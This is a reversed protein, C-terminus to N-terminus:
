NLKECDSFFWKDSNIKLKKYEQMKKENSLFYILYPNIQNQIRSLYPKRSCHQYLDEDFSLNNLGYTDRITINRNAFDYNILITLFLLISFIVNRNRNVLIINKLFYILFGFSLIDTFLSYQFESIVRVSSNIYLIILIFIILCLNLLIMQFNKKFILYLLTLNMMLYFPKLSIYKKNDFKYEFQFMDLDIFYLYYLEKFSQIISIIEFELFNNNAFFAENSFFPDYVIKFNNPVFHISLFFNSLFFALGILSLKDFFILKNSSALYFSVCLCLYFFFVLFHFYSLIELKYFLLFLVFITSLLLLLGIKTRITNIKYNNTEQNRFIKLFLFLLPFIFLYPLFQIKAFVSLFLMLSSLFINIKSHFNKSLFYISLILIFFGFSINHNLFSLFTFNPILLLILIISIKFFSNIQFNDFIKLVFFITLIQIIYNQIRLIYFIKKFENGNLNYSFIESLSSAEIINILDLFKILYSFFYFLTYGPHDYSESFGDNMLLAHYVAILEVEPFSFITRDFDIFYFHFYFLICFAIFLILLNEKNKSLIM